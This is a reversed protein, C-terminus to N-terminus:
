TLIKERQTQVCNSFARVEAACNLSHRQNALYCRMVAEQLDGCVPMMSPKMHKQEVGEVVKAFEETSMKYFEANKAELEDIRSSLLVQRRVFDDDNARTAIDDKKRPFDGSVKFADSGEQREITIKTPSSYGGGM